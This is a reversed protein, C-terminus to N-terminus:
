YWNPWGSIKWIIFTYTTPIYRLRGWAKQLFTSDRALHVPESSARVRWHYLPFCMIGWLNGGGPTTGNLHIAKKMDLSYYLGEKGRWLGKEQIKGNQVAIELPLPLSPAPSLCLRLTWFNCWVCDQLDLELLLSVKINWQLGLSGMSPNNSAVVLFHPNKQMETLLTADSEYPSFIYNEAPYLKCYLWDPSTQTLVKNIEQAIWEERCVWMSGSETQREITQRTQCMQLIGTM